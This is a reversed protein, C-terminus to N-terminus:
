PSGSVNGPGGYVEGPGGVMMIAEEEGEDIGKVGVMAMPKGEGEELLVGLAVGICMSAAETWAQAM